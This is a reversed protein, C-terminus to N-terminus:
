YSYYEKPVDTHVPPKSPDDEFTDTLYPIKLVEVCYKKDLSRNLTWAIVRVGRQKWDYITKVNMSYRHLLLVSFGVLFYTFRPLLWEHIVDLVRLILKAYWPGGESSVKSAYYIVEPCWAVAAVIRPNRRRIRYIMTAFFSTVLANTYLQPYKEYIDLIVKILRPDKHKVDIFMKQGASLLHSVTEDLTSITTRPFRERNPHKASLNLKKLTAWNTKSIELNKEALRGTTRDHFVVPVNDATVCVDFEIYNCNNEKCNKYAAITNEPADIGGGRHGVVEVFKATKMEEPSLDSLDKGLIAEVDKQSPAPIRFYHVVAILGLGLFLGTPLYGLESLLRLTGYYLIVLHLSYGLFKVLTQAM